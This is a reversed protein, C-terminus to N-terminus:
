LDEESFTDFGARMFLAATKGKGPVLTGSFTGDYIRHPGCSPSNEKLIAQHCGREQAIRLAKHAGTEFAATRDIGAADVVRGGAQIESPTRPTPLGGLAEPCLPVVEHSKGLEVVAACPQSRGDYRCHEGLLCASVAIPSAPDVAPSTPAVATGLASAGSPGGATKSPNAADM